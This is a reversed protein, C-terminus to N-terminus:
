RRYRVGHGGGPDTDAAGFRDTEEREAELRARRALEAIRQWERRRNQELRLQALVHQQHPDAGASPRPAPAAPGVPQQWAAPGDAPEVVPVWHMRRWRPSTQEGPEIRGLRPVSVPVPVPEPRASGVGFPAYGALPVPLSPEAGPAPAPVAAGASGPRVALVHVIAAAAATTVATVAMLLPSVGNMSALPPVVAAFGFHALGLVASASGALEGQKDLALATANPAILGTCGVLVFLPLLLALVSDSALVALLM